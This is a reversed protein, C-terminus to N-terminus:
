ALNYYKRQGEQLVLIGEGTLENISHFNEVSDRIAAQVLKLGQFEKELALYAAELKSIQTIHDQNTSM